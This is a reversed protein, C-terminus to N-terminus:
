ARVKPTKFRFLMMLSINWKKFGIQQIFFRNVDTAHLHRWTYSEQILIKRTWLLPGLPTSMKPIVLKFYGNKQHSMRGLLVKTSVKWIRVIVRRVDCHTVNSENQCSSFKPFKPPPPPPPPQPAPSSPFWAGSSGPCWWDEALFINNVCALQQRTSGNTSELCHTVDRILGKPKKITYFSKTHCAM